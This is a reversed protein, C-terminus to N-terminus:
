HFQPIVGLVPIDFRQALDEEDKVKMNFFEMFLILFASFVLGVLFGVIMNQTVNPSSPARPARAPQIVKVSGSNLVSIIEEPALEGITNAILAADAPQGCTVVVSFIETDDISSLSIMSKIQGSTYDLNTKQIVKNLFDENRLLIMYTKVLRQSIQIDTLNVKNSSTQESYNQVYMQIGASYKPQILFKTVAFAGGLGLAACLLILWLREWFLKLLKLLSFEM